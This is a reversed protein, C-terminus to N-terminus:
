LLHRAVAHGLRAVPGLVLQNVQENKTVQTQEQKM